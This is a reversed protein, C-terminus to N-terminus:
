KGGFFKDLIKRAIPAADYSGEGGEELMVTLTIQPNDAPAFVTFWAHTTGKGTEATGTKGAAPGGGPPNFDYFPFATGGPKLAAIMGEKVTELYERGVFGSRLVTPYFSRVTKGGSDKIQSVIYPKYLTGGSAVISTAFNIQLPTTLLFGQGISYHYTDGIYWSEGKSQKKWSADPVLGAAEGPIDIGLASGLGFLRAYRAIQEQGLGAQSGYGGGVTYFCTDCSEQIAGAITLKGHGGPKWDGFNFAGVSLSGPGDILTKKSVVNQELAASAVIPKFVSGPPFLASIARNFFPKGSDAELKQYSSGAMSTSFLNADVTPLSVLVLIKGSLPVSAVVAGARAKSKKVGELLANYATEQLGEDINLVVTDGPIPPVERVKRLLQGRADSEYIQGGDVGRLYDDYTKEVGMRGVKDTIQLYPRSKLDPESVPSVYGLLHFYEESQRYDRKQGAKIQLFPYSSVKGSLDLADQQSIDRIIVVEKAESLAATVASDAFSYSKLFDWSCGKPCRAPDFYLDFSPGNGALVKGSAGIILGREAKLPVMRVSNDVSLALNAPGNFIQLVALTSAFLAVFFFLSVALVLNFHRIKGRRSGGLDFIDGSAGGKFDSYKKSSVINEGFLDPANM